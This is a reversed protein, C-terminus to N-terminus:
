LPAVEDRDNVLPEGGSAQSVEESVVSGSPMFDSGNQSNDSGVDVETAPAPVQEPRDHRDRWTGSRVIAAEGGLLPIRGGRTGGRGGRGGRPGVPPADASGGREPPDGYNGAGRRDARKGQHRSSKGFGAGSPDRAEPGLGAGPRRPSPQARLKQKRRAPAAGAAAVVAPGGTDGEAQGHGQMSAGAATAPTGASEAAAPEFPEHPPQDQRGVAEAVAAAIVPAELTPPSEAGEPAPSDALGLGGQVEEAAPGEESLQHMTAPRGVAPLALGDDSAAATGAAPRRPMQESETPDAEMAMPAGGQLRVCPEAAAADDRSGTEGVGAGAAGDAPEGLAEVEEQGGHEERQQEERWLAEGRRAARQARPSTGSTATTRVLGVGRKNPAAPSPPQPSTAPLATQPPPLPWPSAASDVGSRDQAPPEQHRARARGGPLPSAQQTQGPSDVQGQILLRMRGVSSPRSATSSVRRTAPKDGKGAGKTAPKARPKGM